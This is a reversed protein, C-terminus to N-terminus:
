CDSFEQFLSFEGGNMNYKCADTLMCLCTHMNLRSQVDVFSGLLHKYYYYPWGDRISNLGDIFSSYYLKYFYYRYLGFM